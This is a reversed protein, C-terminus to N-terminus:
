QFLVGCFPDIYVRSISLIRSQSLLSKGFGAPRFFRTEPQRPVTRVAHPSADVM